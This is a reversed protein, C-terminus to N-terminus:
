SLSYIRFFTFFHLNSTIAVYRAFLNRGNDVGSHIDRGIVISSMGLFKSLFGHLGLKPM